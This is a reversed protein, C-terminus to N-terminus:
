DDDGEEEVAEGNPKRLVVACGGMDRDVRCGTYPLWLEFWRPSTIKRVPELLKEELELWGREWLGLPSPDSIVIYLDKLGKM